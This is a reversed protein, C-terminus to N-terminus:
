GNNIARRRHLYMTMKQKIKHYDLYAERHCWPLSILFCGLSMFVFAPLAIWLVPVYYVSNTGPWTYKFFPLILWYFGGLSRDLVSMPGFVMAGNRYNNSFVDQWSANTIGSIKLLVENIGVVALVGLFILPTLYVRRHDLRHLGSAVMALPAIVLPMHCFYFRAIEVVTEVSNIAYGDYSSPILYVGFGSIIGLYFMYDKFAKGGWLYMIPFFIVSVACINDPSIKKLSYPLDNFYSPLFIKLFHLAANVILLVTIFLHVREKKAKRAWLVTVVSLALLFVNM